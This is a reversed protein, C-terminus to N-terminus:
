RRASARETSTKFIYSVAFGLSYNQRQKVLPSAEFTAGQVNDYRSYVALWWDGLRRSAATTVGWGGYGANASYAARDATVDATQVDYFHANFRRTSVIPGGQVGVNWGQVDVDLNLLPSLTWGISQPKRQVTFAARLPVRLDLKWGPGKSLLINVNPGIEFTAALDKMGTRARSNESRVPASGDASIDFDFGETDLLVARTGDKDSRFFDGRYTIYPVPLLWNLRQDSGRYQQVSLGAVGLGLEWLPLASRPTAPTTTTVDNAATTPPPTITQTETGSKASGDAPAPSPTQAMVAMPLMLSAALCHRAFVSPWLAPSRSIWFIM